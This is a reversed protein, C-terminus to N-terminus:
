KDHIAQSITSTATTVITFRACVSLSTRGAATCVWGLHDHRLLTVEGDDIRGNGGRGSFSAVAVDESLDRM